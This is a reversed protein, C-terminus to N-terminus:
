SSHGGIGYKVLRRYLTARDIELMRAAEERNGSTMDLAWEIHRREAQGVADKLRVPLTDESRLERPLHEPSVGGDGALILAREVVNSLERVNGPWRYSLLRRMAQNDIPPVPRGLRESHRCVFHEVLSPLDERRERLPPVEIRFVNLRYFLDQRFRQSAIEAELQRNTAAILRFDVPVPKDSGLPLVERQDIARLLKAQAPAPLEGIEDLFVTGGRAARLIGDRRSAAGTYAGKEHGFLQADVMDPPMAAVNVALFPSDAVRSGEHIARAVLEKGTGSEGTILVTSRTPAVKSIADFVERIPLSTGVIGQYGLERHLQRRLRGVEDRLARLSILNAVKQLLDEFVVPKLLYDYAGLRLAEVATDVSAYATIILVFTEPCRAAVERVLEMGGLRPMRLDTLLVVYDNEELLALAELGDAAEDVAYGERRLLESLNARLIAEDETLLIRGRGSM